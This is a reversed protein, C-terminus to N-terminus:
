DEVQGHRESCGPGRAHTSEPRIIDGVAGFQMVVCVCHTLTELPLCKLINDQRLQLTNNSSSQQAHYIYTSVSRDNMVPAAACGDPGEVAQTSVSTHQQLCRWLQLWQGLINEVCPLIHKLVSQGTVWLAPLRADM